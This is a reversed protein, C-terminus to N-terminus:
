AFILKFSERLKESDEEGLSGLKRIVLSVTLTSLVPKIISPKLLGAEQWLGVLVDGTRMASLQSSTIAAVILDNREQQYVKSSLVVAPRKKVRSQDTFPFPVLLVDAFKYTM